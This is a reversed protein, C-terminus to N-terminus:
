LKRALLLEHLYCKRIEGAFKSDILNGICEFLGERERDGMMRHDSYTSLLDLYQQRNYKEEEVYTRRPTEEFLGSEKMEMTDLRVEEILPLVLKKTGERFQEYCMQVQEFFAQDGGAVHHYKIIALYGGPKLLSAIKKYRVNPDLWHFATAVVVLDYQVGAPPKWEEFAGIQVDVKEFHALKRQAVRAMDEGLEVATVRCGHEALHMTAIGTGAAIELVHSSSHCGSLQFLGEFLAAPYRNRARDYLEAVENFTRKLEEAM